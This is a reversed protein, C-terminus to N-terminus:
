MALFAERDKMLEDAKSFMAMASRVAENADGDIEARERKSLGNAPRLGHRVWRLLGGMCFQTFSYRREHEGIATNGHRITSSPILITSGPPFEIILGLDWLVLHGGKKYNYNGLATIACLGQPVNTSDKHGRCVCRPGLNFAAMPFISNKFICHCTKDKTFFTDLSDAYHRFLKPAYYKLISSGFSAIRQVNPDSVLRSILDEKGKNKLNAPAKHGLGYAVGVNVAVFDGRRGCRQKSSWRKSGECRVEEMTSAMAQTSTAWGEDKPTSAMIIFAKNKDDCLLRLESGDWEMLRFKKGLRGSLYDELAWVSRDKRKDNLGVYAHRAASLKSLSYKIKIATPQSYKNSISSRLKHDWPGSAAKKAARAKKKRLKKSDKMGQSRPHKRKSGDCPAPPPAPPGPVNTRQPKPQLQALLPGDEVYSAQQPSHAPSPPPSSTPTSPLSFSSASSLPSPPAADDLADMNDAWEAMRREREMAAQVMASLEGASTVVHRESGDPVSYRLGSRTNLEFPMTRGRQQDHTEVGTVDLASAQEGAIPLVPPSPARRPSHLSPPQERWGAFLRTSSRCSLRTRADISGQRPGMTLSFAGTWAGDADNSFYVPFSADPSANTSSPIREVTPSPGGPPANDPSPTSPRRNHRPGSKYSGDAFGCFGSKANRRRRVEAIRVAASTM